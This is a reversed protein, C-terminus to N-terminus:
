FQPVNEVYGFTKTPQAFASKVVQGGRIVGLYANISWHRSMTYDGSAKVVLLRDWRACRRAV